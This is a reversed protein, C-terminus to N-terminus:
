RDRHDNTEHTKEKLCKELSNWLSKGERNLDFSFGSGRWKTILLRLSGMVMVFLHDAPVDRVIEEQQQGRSISDLLIKKHENMIGYSRNLVRKESKFLDESFLVLALGPNESFERCRDIFFAEIKRLAPENSAVIQQLIKRSSEEFLWTIQFLIDGKNRFHRYLAADTCDIKRALSKMTLAKIGGGSILELASNMIRRQRESFTINRQNKM